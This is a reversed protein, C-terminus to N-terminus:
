KRKKGTDESGSLLEIGEKGGRESRKGMREREGIRLGKKRKGM